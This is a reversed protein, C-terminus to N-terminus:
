AQSRVKMVLNTTSSGDFTRTQQIRGGYAEVIERGVIEATTGGKVLVDPRLLRLLEHPTDQDFVLVHSVCTLAALLTARDQQGVIPRTPGKLRRVSDDSNIAVILVDGSAAAQELYSVHGVHLLDFCGNTFVLTQGHGRYSSALSLMQGLSVIKQSAATAPRLLEHALESRSVIAVGQRETELGAALNALKAADSLSVRGALCLGLTALVMDGAGTIDCVTRIRAPFAEETRGAQSVAIGDRDLTVAVAACGLRTCLTSAAVLGADPSHIRIGTAEEAEIRNPKILTAGRYREYDVGRAPDVLVPIDRLKAAEFVSRLLSLTCVGKAYDSILVAACGSLREHIGHALRTETETTIAHRHEHDVRLIQHAHRSMTRGLFREKTTTRRADECLVLSDDIGDERLLAQLIRGNADPGIVGLLSVDADLGRLLAAVSAAGGLRAEETEARLVLVPAEPSVREADGWTYRDLMLDGLVLVKTGAFRDIIELFNNM